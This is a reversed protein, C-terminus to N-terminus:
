YCLRAGVGPHDNSSASDTSTDFVGANSGYYAGGGSLLVRWDDVWGAGLSNYYTYYYDTIKTSSTAGVTAPLFGRMLQVLTAQYGNTLALDGVVDYNTATDDAFNAENNCAYLRSYAGAENNYVNAGDVFQWVNGFLNEIGRYSMYANNSNGGVSNTGNGDSNSKGCQGIYGDAVWTGGSLGTRGAGIMSQSNFNAYEVLYLLQVASLLDYDLQRWGAGRNSALNRFVARTNNTKPYEGSVSCLLDAGTDIPYATNDNTINASGIMAGASDDYVSAEYAGIYRYDVETGDKIFAPHVTFGFAPIPSIEWRSYSYKYYFKKIQVMVQGHSQDDITASQETDKLTSDTPDLFYLVNGSNDLVCRRMANQCPMPENPSISVPINVLAGTRLYTDASEDWTLGYHFLGDIYRGM